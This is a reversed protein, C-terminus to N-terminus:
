VAYWGLQASIEIMMEFTDKKKQRSVGCHALAEDNV